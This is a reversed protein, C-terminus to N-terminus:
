FRLRRAKQRLFLIRESAIYVQDADLFDLSEYQKPLLCHPVRRHRRRGQLFDSGPFDEFLFISTRTIPIFGLFRKYWYTLLAATQADPSLAAATVVRRKLYLSDRLEAVHAGPRAPLVYHKTYYNGAHVRNKSFLHLSDQHWFFGELDFNAQEPPPPFALQDPYRFRISDLKGSPLDFIYICLDRRANRNNGFDGIYLRGQDDVALDEWDRNLANPVRLSQKLRGRGDTLCLVPEHGSDNHWWLSDPGAYYLGSVEPLEPPLCFRKKPKSQAHAASFVFIAVLLLIIRLM